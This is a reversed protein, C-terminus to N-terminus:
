EWELEAFAASANRRNYSDFLQWKSRESEVAHDAAQGISTGASIALRLEAALRELYRRQDEAADPWKASVPGHGPVIRTAEHHMLETMVALWGSISGDLVPVHALFVLDGTWLTGSQRDFVTLDNNTHAAPYAQIVLERGGLDITLRDAVLKTPAIPKTGKMKASGVQRDYSQLYHEGREGLAAPLNRHGIITSAHGVFAANGFVHDPHGHTNIIYEIPLGTRQQIAARLTLGDCLSGGTDIVAVSDKGVIFGINATAGGNAPSPLSMEGQRVFAGPSIQTVNAPTTCDAASTKAYAPEALGAGPLLPAGTQLLAALLAAAGRKSSGLCKLVGKRCRLKM